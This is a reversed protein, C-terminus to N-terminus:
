LAAIKEYTETSIEIGCDIHGRQDYPVQSRIIGYKEFSKMARNEKARNFVNMMCRPEDEGLWIRRLKRKCDATDTSVFKERAHLVRWNDVVLIQGKTLPCRVRYKENLFYDQNLMCVAKLDEEAVYVKADFRFTLRMRNYDKMSFVPYGRSILDNRCTLLCNSKMLTKLMEPREELIDMLVRQADVVYNAGGQSAPQAMQLLLMRPPNVEYLKGNVLTAGKLYTGDTHPNFEESNVGFYEDSFAAWDLTTPTEGVIGHENARIHRQIHGLHEGIIKFTNEYNDWPDVVVFGKEHVRDVIQPLLDQLADESEVRYIDEKTLPAM